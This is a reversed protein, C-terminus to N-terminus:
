GPPVGKCPSWLYRRGWLPPNEATKTTFLIDIEAMKNM